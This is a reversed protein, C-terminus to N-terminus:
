VRRNIRVLLTEQVLVLRVWQFLTSSEPCLRQLLSLGEEFVVPITIAKAGRSCVYSLVAFNYDFTIFALTVLMCRHKM